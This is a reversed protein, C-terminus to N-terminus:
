TGALPGAIPSMISMNWNPAAVSPALPLPFYGALCACSRPPRLYNGAGGEGGNGHSIEEWVYGGHGADWLDDVPEAADVGGRAQGPDAGLRDALPPLGAGDRGTVPRRHDGGGAEAQGVQLSGGRHGLGIRDWGGGPAVAARTRASPATNQPRPKPAWVRAGAGTPSTQKLVPM